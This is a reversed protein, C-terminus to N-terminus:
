RSGIPLKYQLNNGTLLNMAAEAALRSPSAAVVVQQESDDHYTQERSRLVVFQDGCQILQYTTKM